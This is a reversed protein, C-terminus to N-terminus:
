KELAQKMKKCYRKPPEIEFNYSFSSHHVM